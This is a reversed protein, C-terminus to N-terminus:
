RGFKKTKRGKWNAGMQCKESELHYVFVSPILKRNERRWQLAHLLDDHEAVGNASPYRQHQSKHWLQFFGPPVYGYENHIIRAGLEHGSEPVLIFHHKHQRKKNGAFKEWEEFSCINVRDCGWISNKDIYAKELMNRFNDPLVVDSDVHLIWDQFNLHAIGLNIAAGKNFIQNNEYFVDTKVCKVSHENCVKQTHKDDFSTVVVFDDFFHLNEHITHELFDAYNVSITVGALHNVRKQSFASPNSIYDM